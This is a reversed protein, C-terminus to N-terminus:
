VVSKRDTQAPTSQAASGGGFGQGQQGQYGSQQGQYGGQQGGGAPRGDLMQLDGIVIETTYREVGDQGQWKRTQLRGAVYVKARIPLYAGAIGRLRRSGV